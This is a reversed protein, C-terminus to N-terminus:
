GARAMRATVVGALAFYLGTLALAIQVWLPSPFAELLSAGAALLWILTIALSVRRLPESRFPHVYPTPVFTLAALILVIVLNALPPLGFVFLYLAVVNWIAPFGVFENSAAKSETDSFHFLSSLLIVFGAALAMHEPLLGSTVLAVVPIFVYTLYDVINDLDDGSWRALHQKTGYRRALPGDIGDVGLALGLWFFMWQWDGDFAALLALFALCAGSATLVHVAAARLIPRKM